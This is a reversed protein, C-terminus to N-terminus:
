KARSDVSLLVWSKTKSLPKSEKITVADGVVCQNDADHITLKTSRKIFKKYLKHMVQREILVVASKNMKDSVVTGKLTREVKKTTQADM